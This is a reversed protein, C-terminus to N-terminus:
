VAKLKREWDNYGNKTVKLTHEGSAVEITSPTNGVFGGDM